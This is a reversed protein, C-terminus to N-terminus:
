VFMERIFIVYINYAVLDLDSLWSYVHFQFVQSDSVYSTFFDGWVSPHFDALPRRFNAPPKADQAFVPLSPASGSMM